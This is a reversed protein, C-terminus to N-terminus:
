DETPYGLNGWSEDRLNVRYGEWDEQDPLESSFQIAGVPCVAVCAQTGGPGGEVTNGDEDCLYPTDSCLDCKRSRKEGEHEEDAVLTPRSPTYACTRVCTGCGICVERDVRRVNGFEPDAHLAGTPCATLCSPEQCQRCQEITVDDPWKEFSNQLIQIRSASLNVKGEHVLSCTIMCTVCGQCKKIDVLLYGESVPVAVVGSDSDAGADAAADGDAADRCGMLAVGAGAGVIVVGTVKLFHRRSVDDDGRATAKATEIAKQSRSSDQKDAM